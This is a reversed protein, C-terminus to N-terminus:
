KVIVENKGVVINLGDMQNLNEVVEALSQKREAVFHLEMGMIDTNEFVVTKNYWRGIEAMIKHLSVHDFYFLGEKRQTYPYTEEHRIDWQNRGHCIAMEGPKIYKVESLFGTSVAVSGSILVVNADKKDYARVNFVTGLVTTTFYDNEVVFPHNKDKTVEFYAEGQLRVVRKGSGFCSPFDLRSEANLWVKTGDPLVFHCDKGRPTAMTLQEGRAAQMPKKQAFSISDADVVGKDEGREDTLTVRHTTQPTSVMAVCEPLEPAPTQLLFVCIWCAAVAAMACMIYYLPRRSAASAEQSDDDNQADDNDDNDKLADDALSCEDDKMKCSIKEWEADIDPVPFHSRLLANRIDDMEEETPLLQDLDDEQIDKLEDM